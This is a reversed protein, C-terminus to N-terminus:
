FNLPFSLRLEKTGLSLLALSSLENTLENDGLSITESNSLNTTPCFLALFATATANLFLHRLCARLPSIFFSTKGFFIKIIPGVPTPLVSIELLSDFSLLLVM